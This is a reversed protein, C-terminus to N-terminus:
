RIELINLKYLLVGSISSLKSYCSLFIFNIRYRYLYSGIYVILFVYPGEVAAEQGSGTGRLGPARWGPPRAVQRAGPLVGRSGQGRIGPTGYGGLVQAGDEALLAAAQASEIGAGSWRTRDGPVASRTRGRIRWKIPSM